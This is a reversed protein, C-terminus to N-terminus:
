TDGAQDDRQPKPALWDDMEATGSVVTRNRGGRKALFVAEDALITIQDVSSQGIESDAVGFSVTCVPQDHETWSLALSERVREVAAVAELTSCGPFCLLFEDSGFRAV